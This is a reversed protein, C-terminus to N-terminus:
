VADETVVCDALSEACPAHALDLQSDMVHGTFLHAANEEEVRESEGSM